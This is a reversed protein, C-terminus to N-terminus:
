KRFRTDCTRNRGPAGTHHTEAPAQREPTVQDESVSELIWGCGPSRESDKSWFTSSLDVHSRNKGEKPEPVPAFEIGFRTGDTPRLIVEGAEDHTEWNLVGAWFRALRVPDNADFRLTTLRLTM